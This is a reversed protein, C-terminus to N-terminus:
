RVKRWTAEAASRAVHVSDSARGLHEHRTGDPLLCRSLWGHAGALVELRPLSFTSAADSGDVNKAWGAATRAWGVPALAGAPREEVPPAALGAAEDVTGEVLTGEVLTGAEVSTGEVSTGEVSTGEATTGEVLENVGGDTTM